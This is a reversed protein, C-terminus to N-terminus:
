RSIDPVAGAHPRRSAAAGGPQAAADGLGAPQPRHQVRRGVGARRGPHQAGPRAACAGAGPAGGASGPAGGGAPADPEAATRAGLAHQDTRRRRHRGARDLLRRRNRLLADLAAGAHRVLHFRDSVQGAGPAAQTAGDAYAEARDRAVVEVGPHARLWAVLPAAERGDLVDVPRRTELDVLLTAYVRVRRLAFDDVGLVRPTPAGEAAARRELRLLTDASVALGAATALRAGVEAGAARALRLWDDAAGTRRARGGLQRGFSEVFTRRACGGNACAFRRVTLVLRVPHGRWPLDVPRRRYRAHVRGSAV